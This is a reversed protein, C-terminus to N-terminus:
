VGRVPGSPPNARVEVEERTVTETSRTSRTTTVVGTAPVRSASVAAPVRRRFEGTFLPRSAAGAVAGIFTGLVHLLVWGRFGLGYFLHSSNNRTIFMLFALVAPVAVSNVAAAGLARKLRGAHYGGFTGGLLGNFMPLWFTAFSTIFMTLISGVLINRKFTIGEAKMGVDAPLGVHVFKRHPQTVYSTPTTDRAHPPPIIEAM